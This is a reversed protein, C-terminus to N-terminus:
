KEKAYRSNVGNHLLDMVAQESGLKDYDLNWGYRIGNTQNRLVHEALKEIGEQRACKVFTRNRIDHHESFMDIDCPGVDCEWCGNFGKEKCCNYHYCGNDSMHRGCCNTESKCGGCQAAEHCFTCVLGCYGISDAIQRITIPDLSKLYNDDNSTITTM